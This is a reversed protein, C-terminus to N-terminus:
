PGFGHLMYQRWIEEALRRRQAATKLPHSRMLDAILKEIFEGKTMGNGRRVHRAHLIRGAYRRSGHEQRVSPLLDAETRRRHRAPRALGRRLGRQGRGHVAYARNRGSQEVTHGGARDRRTAAPPRAK